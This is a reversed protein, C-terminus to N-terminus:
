VNYYDDKKKNYLKMLSATFKPPASKSLTKDFYKECFVSLIMHEEKKNPDEEDKVLKKM